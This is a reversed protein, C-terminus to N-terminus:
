SKSNPKSAIAMVAQSPLLSTGAAVATETSFLVTDLVESGITTAAVEANSLVLGRSSEEWEVFWAQLALLTTSKGIGMPGLLQLHEFDDALIREIAPPLVAIATWEEDTLAGFPNRRYGIHPFHFFPRQM